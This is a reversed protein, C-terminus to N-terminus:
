FVGSLQSAKLASCPPYTILPSALAEGPETVRQLVASHGPSLSRRKAESHWGATVVVFSVSSATALVNYIYM